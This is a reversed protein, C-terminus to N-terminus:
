GAEFGAVDATITCASGGTRLCESRRQERLELGLGKFWGERVQLCPCDYHQLTGARELMQLSFNRTIRSEFRGPGLISTEADMLEAPWMLAPCADFAEVAEPWSLEHIPRGLSRAVLKGVRAAVFSGALRNLDNAADYGFRNAVEQYWRGDHLWWWQYLQAITPQPKSIPM